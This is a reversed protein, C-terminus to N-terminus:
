LCRNLHLYSAPQSGPRWCHGATDPTTAWLEPTDPLGRHSNQTSSSPCSAAWRPKADTLLTGILASQESMPSVDMKSNTTCVPPQQAPVSWAYRGLVMEKDPDHLYDTSRSCNMRLEDTNRKSLESAYREGASTGLGNKDFVKCQRIDDLVQSTTVDGCSGGGGPVTGAGAAAATGNYINPKYYIAKADKALQTLDLSDTAHSGAAAAPMTAATTTKTSAAKPGGATSAIGGGAPAPMSAPLGGEAAAASSDSGELTKQKQMYAKMKAPDLDLQLYKSRWFPEM